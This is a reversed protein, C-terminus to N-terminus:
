NGALTYVFFRGQVDATLLTKGTDNIVGTTVPINENNDNVIWVREARNFNDFVMQVPVPSNFEYIFGNATVQCDQLEATSSYLRFGGFDQGRTIKLDNRGSHLMNQPVQLTGAVAKGNLTYGAVIDGQGTASVNIRAQRYCFNNLAEAQDCVRVALGCPLSQLLLAATSYYLSGASFPLARWSEVDGYYETLAGAMPFKKTTLLAEKIEDRLMNEYDTGNMGYEKLYRSLTNWPCYGYNRITPWVKKVMEAGALQADPLPYFPGLSVAWAYEWYDAHEFDVWQESGDAYELYDAYLFGKNSIFKSRLITQIERARALYASSRGNDLDPRQALLSAAMMLVNYMNVNHYLSFARKIDKGQVQHGIREHDMKGNVTDYGYYPNGALTTEGRTDSGSLKKKEDWTKELNYDLAQLVLPFERGYLLADSGTTQFHTYLTLMAYYMGDDEAKTWRTGVMQLYQPIKEGRGNEIWSPKNLLFPAWLQLFDPNGARAMLSTSMAGDRVWILHYIRNLAGFCAGGEDIGSYVIRRNLDMVRQFDQNNYQIHGKALVPALIAENRDTLATLSLGALTHIVRDVQYMNEEGGVLVIENEFIQIVARGDQLIRFRNEELGTFHIFSVIEEGRESFKETLLGNVIEFRTHPRVSILLPCRAALAFVNEDAINVVTITNRAQSAAESEITTVFPDYAFKKIYGTRIDPLTFEPFLLTYNDRNSFNRARFEKRRYANPKYVFELETKNEYFLLSVRNGCRNQLIINHEGPEIVPDRYYDTMTQAPLDTMLAIFLGIGALISLCKRM